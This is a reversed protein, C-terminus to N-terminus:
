SPWNKYAKSLVAVFVISVAIFLFSLSILYIGGLYWSAVSWLLYALTLTLIIKIFSRM